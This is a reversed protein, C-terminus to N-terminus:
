DRKIVKIASSIYGKSDVTVSDNKKFRRAITKAKKADVPMVFVTKGKEELLVMSQDDIKRIGNYKKEGAHESLFLKHELIDYIIERKLNREEIYKKVAADRKENAKRIIERNKEQEDKKIKYYKKAEMRQRRAEWVPDSFTVKLDNTVAWEVMKQKFKESGNLQLVNGFKELAATLLVRYKEEGLVGSISLKGGKEKVGTHYIKGGKSTVIDPKPLQVNPKEDGSLGDISKNKERSQLLHLAETNGEKAEKKLWDNWTITRTSLYIAAQERSYRDKAERIAKSRIWRCFAIFARAIISHQSTRLIEYRNKFTGYALTFTQDRKAKAQETVLKRRAYQKKMAQQYQGWLHESAQNKEKPKKEYQQKPQIPPNEKREIFDGLNAELRKMSLERSITSAKVFVKGDGVVLGGGRRQMILGNEGLIRHMEEWSKTTQLAPLCNLRIWTLLSEMGGAKEMTEANGEGKTKKFDHNDSAINYEQEIESAIKAMKTHSQFPELITFKAPHIKNIAIQIHPNDTDYHVASFRQYEEFGLNKVVLDEIENMLELDPHEGEQFSILLHITKDAKSRTNRAQTAQVEKIAAEHMYKKIDEATEADLGVLAEDRWSLVNSWRTQGVRIENGQPNMLYRALREYNSDKERILERIIM